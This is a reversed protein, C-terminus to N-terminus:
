SLRGQLRSNKYGCNTTSISNSGSFSRVLRLFCTDRKRSSRVYIQVFCDHDLIAAEVIAFSPKKGVCRDIPPEMDQPERHPTGRDPDNAQSLGVVAFSSAILARRLFGESMECSSQSEASTGSSVSASKARARGNLGSTVFRANKYCLRVSRSRTCGSPIRWPPTQRAAPFCTIESLRSALLNSARDSRWFM